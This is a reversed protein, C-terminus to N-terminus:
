NRDTLNNKNSCLTINKITDTITMKIIVLKQFSLFMNVIM